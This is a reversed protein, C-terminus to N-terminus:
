HMPKKPVVLLSSGLLDDNPKSLISEDEEMLPAELTREIQGVRDRLEFLRAWLLNQNTALTLVQGRLDNLMMFMDEILPAKMMPVSPNAV